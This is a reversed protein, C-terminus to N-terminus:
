CIGDKIREIKENRLFVLTTEKSYVSFTKNDLNTELIFISLNNKFKGIPKFNFIKILDNRMKILDDESNNSDIYNKYKYGEITIRDLLELAYTINYLRYEM